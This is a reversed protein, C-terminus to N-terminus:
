GIVRGCCPPRWRLSVLQNCREVSGRPHAYLLDALDIAGLRVHGREVGSVDRHYLRPQEELKAEPARMDLLLDIETTTFGTIEIDYRSEIEVLEEFELRSIEPDGDANAAMKNDALRYARREDASPRTIQTTPVDVLGLM